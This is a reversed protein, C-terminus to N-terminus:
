DPPDYKEVFAVAATLMQVRTAQKELYHDEGTLEIFDVPKGATRLADRMEWSQNIPVTTDDKGHILLVPADAQAALRAPSLSRLIADGSSQVGLYQHDSHTVDTRLGFKAERWDLFSSLDAVGAVSVACKYLGHQVTVGALAAYGGYSAGVICARKPDIIGQAVIAAVGDTIDTQMKRGWQGYGADRFARGFGGSGRFNPQFVAYGRSAFAQAWWNFGPYDRIEPGGHPLVVLPLNKAPRGPPLTLVGQMALGDSAKYTVIRTAAVDAQLISPYNWGVATVVHNPYDVFFYTGLDGPGTTFLIMRDLNPTASVLWVTEGPFAHSVKDFKAQLVGDLLITRPSDENTVGGILYRTVPDFLHARVPNDAFLPTNAGDSGYETLLWDGPGVPQEVLIHAPGRGLGVLSTDGIPDTRRDIMRDDDAGVYLRWEGTPQVYEAHAVVTGDPGVLWDSNYLDSGGAVKEAAGSDLDVRYLDTHDHSIYATGKDFDAMAAGGAGTLTLGGFFGYAHGGIHAGGFYGYTAHLITQQGKFVTVVKGTAVDIAVSQGVEGKRIMAAPDFDITASTLLLIHDDDTWFADRLKMVGPDVVRLVEGGVKRVVVKPKDGEVALYLLREGSPSLSVQQMAPLKGYDELPPAASAALPAALLGASFVMFELWRM